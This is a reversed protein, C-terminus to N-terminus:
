SIFDIYNEKNILKAKTKYRDIFNKPTKYRKLPKWKFEFARTKQNEVEIMDIEARQYNRWFYVSATNRSYEQKKLREVFLFNEWLSGLDSRSDLSFFQGILANRIGLDYFYYKKSKALEKRLNSSYSGVSFIVFSKELLNLYRGVTKVDVKLTKSLENISVMQGIQFALLTACKKFTDPSDIRELLLIDRFLYDRVVSKLYDQKEQPHSLHQLYPYGGYILQDELLYPIKYKKMGRSIEHTSLSYLTFTINRGTLNEQIGKVIDLSSSGTIIIKKRPFKDIIIKLSLGINPIRQAEDVLLVSYNHVLKTLATESTNGLLDRTEQTDGNLLLIKQKKFFARIQNLLVTKGVRRAGYIITIFGPRMKKVIVPALTRKIM